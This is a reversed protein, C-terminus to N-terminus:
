LPDLIIYLSPDKEHRSKPSSTDVYKLHIAIRKEHVWNCSHKYRYLDASVNNDKYLCFLSERWVTNETILTELKQDHKESSTDAM